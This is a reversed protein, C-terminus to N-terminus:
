CSDIEVVRRASRGSRVARPQRLWRLEARLAESRCDFPGLRPGTVPTMDAWWSGAADPEVHSARCISRRGLPRLDLVEDYIATIRGDSHILLEM